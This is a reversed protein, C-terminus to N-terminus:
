VPTRYGLVIIVSDNGIGAHVARGYITYSHLQGVGGLGLNMAASNVTGTYVVIADDNSIYNFDSNGNKLNGPRAAYTTGWDSSDFNAPRPFTGGDDVSIYGWPKAIITQYNTLDEQAIVEKAAAAAAYLAQKKFAYNRAVDSEVRADKTVMIGAIALTAMILLAMVMLAGEENDLYPIRIRM